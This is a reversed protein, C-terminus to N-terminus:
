LGVTDIYLGISKYVIEAPTNMYEWHIGFPRPFVHIGMDEWIYGWTNGHLPFSQAGHGIIKRACKCFSVLVDIFLVPYSCLVDCVHVVHAVHLVQYVPIKVM